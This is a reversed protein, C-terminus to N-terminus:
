HTGGVSVIVYEDYMEAIHWSRNVGPVEERVPPLQADWAEWLRRELQNLSQAKANTSGTQEITTETTEDM